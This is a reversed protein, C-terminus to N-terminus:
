AYPNSLVEKSIEGVVLINEKKLMELVAEAALEMSKYNIQKAGEEMSYPVDEIEVNDSILDYIRNTLTDLNM